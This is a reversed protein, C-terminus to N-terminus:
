KIYEDSESRLLLTAYDNDTFLVHNIFNGAPFKLNVPVTFVENYSMM